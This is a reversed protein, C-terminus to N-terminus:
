LRSGTLFVFRARKKGRLSGGIEKLADEKGESEATKAGGKSISTLLVCGPADAVEGCCDWKFGWPDLERMEETDEMEHQGLPTRAGM